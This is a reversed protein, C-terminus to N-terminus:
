GPLQVGQSAAAYCFSIQYGIRLQEVTMGAFTPIVAAEAIEAGVPYVSEVVPVPGPDPVPDPDPVPGHD